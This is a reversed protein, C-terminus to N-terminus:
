TLLFDLAIDLDDAKEDPSETAIRSGDVEKWVNNGQDDMALYEMEVERGAIKFTKKM